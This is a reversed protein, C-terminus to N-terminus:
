AAQLNSPLSADSDVAYSFEDLILIVRRDGILRNAADFVDSWADFRPVAQSGPHAFAWLTRALSDRIQAPTDRTAVWYIYPHGSRQAWQLLLTTKGVRRRGYVLVFHAGDEELATSLDALERQRGVFRSHAAKRPTAM